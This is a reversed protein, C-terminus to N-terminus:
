SETPCSIGSWQDEFADLANIVRQEFAPDSTCNWDAVLEEPENGLVLWLNALYSGSECSLRAQDVACLEEVIEQRRDDPDASWTDIREDGNNVVTPMLEHAELHQLLSLAVPKWNLTM